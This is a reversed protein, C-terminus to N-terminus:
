IACTKLEFPVDQETQQPHDWDISELFRVCFRHKSGSIEAYLLSEAGVKVQILQMGRKSDLNHQYLGGVATQEQYVSSSRLLGLLLEATEQVTSIEHRWGDLQMVRETHPLNLWYHFQPLDFEYSGGPIPARQSISNLFGNKRLSGGLQRNSAYLREVTHAIDDLVQQLRLQDVKPNASISALSKQQQDLQKILDKRIDTRALISSIDLLAQLAARSQWQSSGALHYEFQGFLHSIRLLTRTRENLPHEFLIPNQLAPM